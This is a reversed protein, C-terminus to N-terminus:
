AEGLAKSGRSTEVFGKLSEQGHFVDADPKDTRAHWEIDEDLLSWFADWEPNNV